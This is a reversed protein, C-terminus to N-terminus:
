STSTAVTLGLEQALRRISADIKAQPIVEFVHHSFTGDPKYAFSVAMRYGGEVRCDEYDGRYALIARWDDDDGICCSGCPWGGGGRRVPGQIQCGGSAEVLRRRFEERSLGPIKM